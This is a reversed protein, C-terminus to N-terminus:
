VYMCVYMCVYVCVGGVVLVSCFVRDERASVRILPYARPICANVSACLHICLVKMQNVRTDAM